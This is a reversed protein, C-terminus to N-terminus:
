GAISNNGSIYDTSDPFVRNELMAYHNGEADLAYYLINILAFKSHFTRDRRYSGSVSGFVQRQHLFPGHTLFTRIFRLQRRILRQYRTLPYDVCKERYCLAPNSGNRTREPATFGYHLMLQRLPGIRIQDNHTLVQPGSIERGNVFTGNTSGTDWIALQDNPSLELVAHTRSAAEDAIVVDHSPMRGLTNKGPKLEIETRETDPSQVIWEWPM